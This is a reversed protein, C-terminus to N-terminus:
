NQVDKSCTIRFAKGQVKIKQNPQWSHIMSISPHYQFKTTFFVRKLSRLINQDMYPSVQAVAYLKNGAKQYFKSVENMTFPSNVTLLFESYDNKKSSTLIELRKASVPDDCRQRLVLLHFNDANLKMVNDAFWKLAVSCDNELNHTINGRIELRALLLMQMIPPIQTRFSIYSIMLTYTLAVSPRFSVGSSRWTSIASLCWHVITYHLWTM